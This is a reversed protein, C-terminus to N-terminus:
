FVLTVQLQRDLVDQLEPKKPKISLTRDWNRFEVERALEDKKMNQFPRAKATNGAPGAIVVKRREESGIIRCRLTAELDPFDCLRM